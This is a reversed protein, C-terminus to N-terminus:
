YKLEFNNDKCFQLILDPHIGKSQTMLDYEERTIEKNKKILLKKFLLISTEIVKRYKGEENNLIYLISNKHFNLKKDTEAFYNLMEKAIRSLTGPTANLYMYLYHCARKFLKTIVYESGNFGPVIDDRMAYIITRLHDAVIRYTIITKESLNSPVNTIQYIINFLPQFIDTDYNSTKGQLIATLRCGGMGTDVHCCKLRELSKDLKRNYQIFVINWLEIVYPDNKNVLNTCDRNGILDYHIETCPGCPGTEAMEWFNDEFSNIRSEDVYKLWIEKTEQDRNYYTAYIRSPDLKYINVLLNWAHSIADFKYSGNSNCNFNWFGYMDFM